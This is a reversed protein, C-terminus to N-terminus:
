LLIIELLTKYNIPKEPSIWQFPNLSANKLRSGNYVKQFFLVCLNVCTPSVIQDSFCDYWCLKLYKNQSSPLLNVIM